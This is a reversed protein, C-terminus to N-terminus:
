EWWREIGGGCRDEPRLSLIARLCKDCVHWPKWKGSLLLERRMQLKQVRAVKQREALDAESEAWAAKLQQVELDTADPPSSARALERARRERAYREDFLATSVGRFATDDLSSLWEKVSPM